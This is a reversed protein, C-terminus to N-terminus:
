LASFYKEINLVRQPIEDGSVYRIHWPESQSEWSFGCTPAVEILWPIVPTIPTAGSPVKGLAIDIALGWGHNSSGPVAARAVGKKLWWYAGNYFIPASGFLPKTTTWRQFFLQEQQALTRYTGGYTWTLNIAEQQAILWLTNWARAATNELRGASGISTLVENSIQGNHACVLSSPM